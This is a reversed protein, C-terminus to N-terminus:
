RKIAAGSGYFGGVMLDGYLGKRSDRSQQLDRLREAQEVDAM